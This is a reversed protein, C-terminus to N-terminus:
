RARAAVREDLRDAEVLGCRWGARARPAAQVHARLQALLEAAPRRSQALVMHEVEREEVLDAAGHRGGLALARHAGAAEGVAEHGAAIKEEEGEGGVDGLPAAQRHEDAPHALRVERRIGVASVVRELRELDREAEAEVGRHRDSVGSIHSSLDSVQASVSFIPPSGSISRTM